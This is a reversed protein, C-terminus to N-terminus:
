GTPPTPRRWFAAVLAGGAVFGSLGIVLGNWGSLADIGLAHDLSLSGAGTVALTLAAFAITAVYEYGEGPRFIFFGNTRHVSLYAVFMAAVLGAAAATTLLGTILAIGIAIEGIASMTAQLRAKRWGISEFWKTTGDLSRAHNIGHAMIVVGLWGRLLALAVDTPEM